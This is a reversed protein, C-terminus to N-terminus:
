TVLSVVSWIAAGFASWLVISAGIAIGIGALRHSQRDPAVGAVSASAPAGSLTHAM